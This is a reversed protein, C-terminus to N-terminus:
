RATNGAGTELLLFTLCLSRVRGDFPVWPPLPAWDASRSSVWFNFIKPHGFCGGFDGQIQSHPHSVGLVPWIPTVVALGFTKKNQKFLYLKKIKKKFSNIHCTACNSQYQRPTGNLKLRFKLPSVMETMIFVVPVEHSLFSFM